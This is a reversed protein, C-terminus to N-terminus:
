PRILVVAPFKGMFWRLPFSFLVALPHHNNSDSNTAAILQGNKLKTLEIHICKRVSTYGM